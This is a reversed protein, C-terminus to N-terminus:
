NEPRDALKLEPSAEIMPLLFADDTPLVKLLPLVDGAEVAVLLVEEVGLADAVPDHLAVVRAREAAVANVVFVLVCAAEGLLDAVLHAFHEGSHGTQHDSSAIGSLSLRTLGIHGQLNLPVRLSGLIDAHLLGAVDGLTLVVHEALAVTHLHM